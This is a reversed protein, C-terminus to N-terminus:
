KNEDLAEKNNGLKIQTEPKTKLAKLIRDIINKISYYLITTATIGGLKIIAGSVFNEQESIYKKFLFSSIKTQNKWLFSQVTDFNEKKLKDAKFFSQTIIELFIVSSIINGFFRKEKKNEQKEHNIKYINYIFFIIGTLITWTFIKTALSFFALGIFTIYQSPSFFGLINNIFNLINDVLKILLDLVLFTFKFSKVLFLITIPLDNIAKPIDDIEKCAYFSMAHTFFGLFFSVLLNNIGNMVIKEFPNFKLNKFFIPFLHKKFTGIFALSLVGLSFLVTVIKPFFGKFQEKTYISYILGLLSSPEKKPFLAKEIKYTREELSFVKFNLKDIEKKNETNMDKINKVEEEFKKKMEEFEKKMEESIKVQEEYKKNIQEEHKKNAQEFSEELKNIKEKYLLLTEKSFNSEEKIENKKIFFSNSSIQNDASKNSKQFIFKNDEIMLDKENFINNSNLSKKLFQLPLLNNLLFFKNNNFPIIKKETEENSALSLRNSVLALKNNSPLSLQNQAADICMFFIFFLLLISKPHM